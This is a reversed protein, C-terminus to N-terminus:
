PSPVAVRSPLRQLWGGVGDIVADQIAVSKFGHVEGAPTMLDVTEAGALLRGLSGSRMKRFEDWLADASGYVLLTPISRHVLQALPEVFRPSAEVGSENRRHRARITMGRWANRALRAYARRKAPDLLRAVVRPDLALRAHHSLGNGAAIGTALREGMEYDRVPAALLVVGVLDEIDGACALATRAGFCSGILAVAGFGSRRAWAAAGLLDATFPEDLRFRPAVGGSEGVGHYDFRLSHFGLDALHRCLRVAVRNRDTSVTGGAPLVIAITGSARSSPGTLIGFLSEGGADFFIPEEVRGIREDGIVRAGGDPDSTDAM